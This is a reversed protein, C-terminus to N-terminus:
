AQREVEALWVRAEEEGISGIKEVHSVAFRGRRRLLECVKYERRLDEVEMGRVMGELVGTLGADLGKWLAGESRSSGPDFGSDLGSVKRERKRSVVVLFDRRTM